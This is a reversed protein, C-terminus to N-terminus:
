WLGATLTAPPGANDWVTDIRPVGALGAVDRLGTNGLHSQRKPM